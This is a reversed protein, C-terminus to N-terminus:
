SFYKVRYQFVHIGQNIMRKRYRLSTMFSIRLDFANQSKDLAGFPGDTIQQNISTDQQQPKQLKVKTKLLASIQTAWNTAHQLPQFAHNNGDAM